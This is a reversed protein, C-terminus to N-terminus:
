YGTGISVYLFNIAIALMGTLGMGAVFGVTVIPAFNQWRQRGFKRALYYRGILAGTMTMVVMHPYGNMAGLGGYIYQHSVGVLSFGGFMSVGGGFGALILLPKISQRLQSEGDQMGSAWLAKMYAHQPWFKAVYPYDESPIPGLSSIYTWFIFSAVLMLPFILLEAKLISTFKTRTLQTERLLDAMGGYNHLPLPAFWINVRSYGSIFVASEFIFPVGAHQGAIGSMRANIYSNIPTWLFAFGILWWLSFQEEPPVDDWLNILYHSLVVFGVSAILWVVLAVWTPPDGREVDRRWFAGIDMPTGGGSATEAKKHRAYRVLAKGVGWFGVFAVALSTGIGVSLYIDFTTAVHTEIADMEPKWTPLYGNVQLIPNVVLQFFITTVFMGIVVRWPLVFGFFLIALNLNIGLTAGPLWQAIDQTFDIFPIPIIQITEDLFANTLIPIATYIIGFVAGLMAGISFCYQRYGRKNKEQSSEALAIAGEAHVPALPFPLKEVDSTVKYTLFGLSLQTFKSLLMGGIIVLLVPYWHPDLFNNYAAEEIAPDGFNPSFWTPVEESIGFNYFAESTRLYRHWVMTAFIGGGLALGGSAHSLHSVTYKLIYLEQKRLTVFSRRALEVFLIITVWDAANGLDQGIMLGMFIVGPLMVFAIFFAGLISRWTFGNEYPEHQIAEISFQEDYFREGEQEKETDHIGARAMEGMDDTEGRTGDMPDPATSHDGPGSQSVGEPVNEEGLPNNQNEESM